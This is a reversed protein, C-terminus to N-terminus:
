SIRKELDEVRSLLSAVLLEMTAIRKEAAERKKIESQLVNITILNLSNYHVSYYEDGTPPIDVCEPYLELVEQAVVGYYIKDYKTTERTVTEPKKQKYSIIRLKKYNDLEEDEDSGFIMDSIDTKLRSDSQATITGNNQIYWLRGHYDEDYYNITNNDAPSIMAITDGNIAISSGESMSNSEWISWQSRDVNYEMNAAGSTLGYNNMGGLSWRTANKFRTTFGGYEMVFQGAANVEGGFVAQNTDVQLYLPWRGNATVFWSESDVGGSLFYMRNGNMHIMGSRENTDRFYLTPSDGRIVSKNGDTRLEGTTYVSKGNYARVWTADTMHWGGGYTQFYIGNQGDVRFWDGRVHCGADAYITGDAEITGSTYLSGAKLAEYATGPNNVISIQGSSECIIQSAVRGGWHFGIRPAREWETGGAAGELNYERVEIAASNYGKAYTSSYPLIRNVTGGAAVVGPPGQPGTDGTDGKPGTAGIDGQLGTAGTDGKPLTFALDVGLGNAKNTATVGASVGSTASVGITSTTIVNIDSSGDFLVGNINRATQLATATGANGNLDGSFTPATVTGSATLNLGVTLDGSFINTNTAAM